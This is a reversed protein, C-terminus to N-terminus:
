SLASPIISSLSKFAYIVPLEFDANNGVVLPAYSSIYLSSQSIKIKSIFGPLGIAVISVIIGFGVFSDFITHNEPFPESSPVISPYLHADLMAPLKLVSIDNLLEFKDLPDCIIENM